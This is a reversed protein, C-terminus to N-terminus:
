KRLKKRDPVPGFKSTSDLEESNMNGHNLDEWDAGVAKYAQKLMDAEVQSYPHVTKRKGVWSKSDIDLANNSGDAMAVAQGLKFATYDGSVHESDGYRHMGRTSQQQRKTLKGEKKEVIFEKARM